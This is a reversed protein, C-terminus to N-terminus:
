KNSKLKYEIAEAKIKHFYLEQLERPLSRYSELLKDELDSVEKSHTTITINEGIAINKSNDINNLNIDKKTEEKGTLLWNLSVNCIESIKLITSVRPESVGKEYDILTTKGIGLAKALEGQTLGCKIRAQKLREKLREKM